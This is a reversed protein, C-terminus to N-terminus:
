VTRVLLSRYDASTTRDLCCCYVPKWGIPFVSPSGATEGACCGNNGSRFAIRGFSCKEKVLRQNQEELTKCNEKLRGLEVKRRERKQQSHIVNLKRKREKKVAEPRGRRSSNAHGNTKKEASEKTRSATERCKEEERRKKMWMNFEECKWTGGIVEPLGGASLGFQELRQCLDAATGGSHM